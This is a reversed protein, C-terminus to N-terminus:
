AIDPPVTPVSSQQLHSQILNHLDQRQIETGTETNGPIEFFITSDIADMAVMQFLIHTVPIPLAMMQPDHMPYPSTFVDKLSPYAYVVTKKIDPQDRNELITIAWDQELTQVIYYQSHRLRGALLKLIPAIAEVLAPTTGDQPADNILRRIQEDANMM